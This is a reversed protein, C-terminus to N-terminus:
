SFALRLPEDLLNALLLWYFGFVFCSQMWCMGRADVIPALALAGAIRFPRSFNNIGWMIALVQPLTKTTVVKGAAVYARMALLLSVGYTCADFLGYAIVAALGYSRLASGMSARREGFGRLWRAVGTKEQAGANAGQEAEPGEGKHVCMRMRRPPQCRTWFPASATRACSLGCGWASVTRLSSVGGCGAFGLEKM